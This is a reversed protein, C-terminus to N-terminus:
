FPTSSDVPTAPVPTVAAGPEVPLLPTPVGAPIHIEPPLDREAQALRSLSGSTMDWHDDAKEVVYSGAYPIDKGLEDAIMSVDVQFRDAGLPVVRSLETRLNLTRSYGEVFQNFDLTSKWPPSLFNYAAAYDKRAVAQYFAMVTLEADSPKDLNAPKAFAVYRSQVWLERGDSGRVLDWNDEERVWRIEEWQPYKRVVPLNLGAQQRGPVDKESIWAIRPRQAPQGVHEEGSGTPVSSQSVEPRTVESVLKDKKKKSIGLLLGVMLLVVAFLGFMLLPRARPNEELWDGLTM